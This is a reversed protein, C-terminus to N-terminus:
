GLVLGEAAKSEASSIIESWREPFPKATYGTPLFDTYSKEGVYAGFVDEAMARALDYNAKTHAIERRIENLTNDYILGRERGQEKKAEDRVIQEWSHLDEVKEAFPRVTEIGWAANGEVMGRFSRLRSATNDRHKEYIILIWTLSFVLIVLAGIVLWKGGYNWTPIGFLLAVALMFVLVVIGNELGHKDYKEEGLAIAFDKQLQNIDM